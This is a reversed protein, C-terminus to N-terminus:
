NKHCRFLFINELKIMKWTSWLVVNDRKGLLRSLSYIGYVNLWYNKVLKMNQRTLKLNGTCKCNLITIGRMSINMNESLLTCGAILYILAQIKFYKEGM